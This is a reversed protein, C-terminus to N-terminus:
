NPYEMRAKCAGNPLDTVLWGRKMLSFKNKLFQAKTPLELSGNPVQENKLYINIVYM